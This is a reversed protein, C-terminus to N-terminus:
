PWLGIAGCWPPDLYICKVKGEYRKALSSLAPLNNGRILLNDTDQLRPVDGAGDNTYRRAKTFVMPSLARGVAPLNVNDM